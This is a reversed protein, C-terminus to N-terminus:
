ISVWREMIDQFREVGVKDQLGAIVANADEM